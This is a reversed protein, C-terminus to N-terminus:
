RCRCPEKRMCPPCFLYRLTFLVPLTSGKARQEATLRWHFNIPSELLYISQLSMRLSDILYNTFILM